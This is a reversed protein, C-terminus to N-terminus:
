QKEGPYAGQLCRGDLAANPERGMRKATDATDDNRRLKDTMKGFSVMCDDTEMYEEWPIMTANRSSLMLTSGVNGTRNDLWRRTTEVVEQQIGTGHAQETGPNEVLHRQRDRLSNIAVSLYAPFRVSYLSM